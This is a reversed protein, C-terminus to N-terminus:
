ESSTSPTAAPLLCGKMYDPTTDDCNCCSELNSDKACCPKFPTEKPIAVKPDCYSNEMEGCGYMSTGTINELKPYPSTNWSVVPQNALKCWTGNKSPIEFQYNIGGDM